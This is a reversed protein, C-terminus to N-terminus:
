LDIGPDGHVVIPRIRLRGLRHQEYRRGLEAARPLPVVDHVRQVVREVQRLLTGHLGRVQGLSGYAGYRGAVMMALWTRWSVM